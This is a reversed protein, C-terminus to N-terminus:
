IDAHCRHCSVKLYQQWKGFCEAKSAFSSRWKMECRYELTPVVHVSGVSNCCVYILMDGVEGGCGHIVEALIFDVNQLVSLGNDLRRLYHSSLIDEDIEVGDQELV